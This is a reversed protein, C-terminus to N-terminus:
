PSPQTGALIPTNAEPWLVPVLLKEALIGAGRVSPHNDDFYLVAEEIYASCQQDKCLGSAVPVYTANVDAAISRLNADVDRFRKELSFKFDAPDNGWSTWRALTSPAPMNNTLRPVQGLVILRHGAHSLATLSKRLGRWYQEPNEDSWAISNAAIIITAPNITALKALMAANYRGCDKRIPMSFDAVPPCASATIERISENRSKALSGLVASFEAGHSDGYVIIKPPVVEGLVCTDEYSVKATQDFHCKKRFPSIDHKADTLNVVQQSYRSPAGQSSYLVLAVAVLGGLSLGGSWFIAPRKFGVAGRRRFPQEIFRWTLAALALSTAAVAIKQISTLAEINLMNAFVILPWHWLYLSYSILGLFVLPRVTLFRAPTNETGGQGGWIVLAAGACPLLAALGPFPTKSTYSVVAIAIALLGLAVAADSGFRTAPKPVLGLAVISGALLEWARTPLLYFTSQPHEELRVVSLALSGAFLLWIFTGLGARRWKFVAMLLLPFIIYFQEEVGLSWTHLLPHVEAYPDFYGSNFLCWFNSVSLATALLSSAYLELESPLLFALALVTTAACVFVLAPVIRRIRRDYFNAISFAGAEMDAAIISTILFGSLVFFVDVGVFGGPAFPAGLHYAVVISIAIGRLGDLDRRYALNAM